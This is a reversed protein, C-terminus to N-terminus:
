GPKRRAWPRSRRGQGVPRRLHRRGDRGFTEPRRSHNRRAPFARRERDQNTPFLRHWRRLEVHHALAQRWAGSGPENLLRGNLGATPVMVIQLPALVQGAQPKVERATEATLKNLKDIGRVYQASDPYLYLAAWGAGDSVTGETWAGAGNKSWTAGATVGPLPNGNADLYQVRLEALDALQIQVNMLPAGSQVEIKTQGIGRDYRLNHPLYATLTHKGPPVFPFHFQGDIGAEVMNEWKGDLRVLLGGLNLATKSALLRGSVSTQAGALLDPSTVTQGDKPTVQCHPADKLNMDPNPRAYVEVRGWEPNYSGNKKKWFEKVSPEGPIGRLHYQGAEDTLTQGVVDWPWRRASVPCNPVPRGGSDIVKGAIDGGANLTLTGLDERKLLDWAVLTGVGPQVISLWPNDGLYDDGAAAIWLQFSGDEGTITRGMAGFFNWDGNMGNQVRVLAGNVPQGTPSVVVGHIRKGPNLAFNFNTFTSNAATVDPRAYEPRTEYGNASVSVCLGDKGQMPGATTLPTVFVIQYEGTASTLTEQQPCKEFLEPGQYRWIALHARVLANAIPNGSRKDRVTGSVTVTFPQPQASFQLRLGKDSAAQMQSDLLVPVLLLALACRSLTITAPRPM